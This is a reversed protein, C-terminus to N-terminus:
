CSELFRELFRLDHLGLHLTFVRPLHEATGRRCCMQQRPYHLWLSWREQYAWGPDVNGGPGLVIRLGGTGAQSSGPKATSLMVRQATEGTAACGM